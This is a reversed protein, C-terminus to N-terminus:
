EHGSVPYPQTQAGYCTVDTEKATFKSTGGVATTVSSTPDLSASSFSNGCCYMCAYNSSVGTVEDVQESRGLMGLLDPGRVSWVVQGREATLPITAGNIDPVQRDRLARLDISLTQHPGVTKLGM